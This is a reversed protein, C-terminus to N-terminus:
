NNILFLGVKNIKDTALESDIKNQHGNLKKFSRVEKLHFRLDDIKINKEEIIHM